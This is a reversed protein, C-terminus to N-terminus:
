RLATPEPFLLKTKLLQILQTTEENTPTFVFRVYAETIEPEHLGPERLDRRTTTAKPDLLNLAQLINTKGSENIGVLIRCKQDFNIDLHKISRHNHITVYSLKM